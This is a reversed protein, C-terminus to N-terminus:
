LMSPTTMASREAAPAAASALFENSAKKWASLAARLEEMLDASVLYAVEDRSVSTQEASDGIEQALQAVEIMSKDMRDAAAKMKEDM